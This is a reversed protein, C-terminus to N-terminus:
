PRSTAVTSTPLDLNTSLRVSHNPNMRVRRTRHFSAQRNSNDGAIYLYGTSHSPCERIERRAGSVAPLLQVYM